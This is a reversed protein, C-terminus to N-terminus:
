LELYHFQRPQAVSQRLIGDKEDTTKMTIWRPKSNVDSCGSRRIVSELQIKSPGMVFRDSNIATNENIFRVTERDINKLGTGSGPQGLRLCLNRTLPVFVFTGPSKVGATSLRPHTVVTVPNDSLVFGVESPSILIGVDLESFVKAYFETQEVMTKIFPIETAVFKVSGSQVAKVMREPAVKLEKGTKTAYDKMVATAREVNAFAVEMLDTAGTEYIMSIMQKNAPVRLYQLAAFYMIDGLLDGGPADLVSPLKRLAASTASDVERLFQTEVVQNVGGPLKLAYLDHQNCISLPHLQKCTKLKRDYVWLLGDSATFHKQYFVPVYHHKM